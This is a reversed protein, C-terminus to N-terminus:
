AIRDARMEATGSSTSDGRHLAAPAQLAVDFLVPRAAVPLRRYRARRDQM